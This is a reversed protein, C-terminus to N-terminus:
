ILLSRHRISGAVLLGMWTIDRALYPLVRLPRLPGPFSKSRPAARHVAYPLGLAAFWPSLPMLGVGVLALSLYAQAHDWFYRAIFFRRLEPFRGVLGPWLMLRKMFLWQLPTVPVVEHYVVAGPAFRSEWGLRKVTWAVAVDEGGLPRDARPTADAPFGGSAEFAERRYFLGTCEYVFSESENMPYWTFVGLEGDPDPLTKGQVIGVGEDFAALGQRLWSPHARCDSDMFAVFPSRTHAVGANRSPGPGEPEKWLVRYDCPAEERLRELLADNSRDPTSDVVVVEYLRPDLDQAFLSRVAQELARPRGYAPVVVAVRSRDSM